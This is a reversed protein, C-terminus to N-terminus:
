AAAPQQQQIIRSAAPHALGAIVKDDEQEQIASMLQAKLPVDKTVASMCPVCALSSAACCFSTHGIAACLWLPLSTSALHRAQCMGPALLLPRCDLWLQQSSVSVSHMTNTVAVASDFYHHWVSSLSLRVTVAATCHANKSPSVQSPQASSGNQASERIFLTGKNGRALRFTGEPNM